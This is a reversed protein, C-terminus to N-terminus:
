RPTHRIPHDPKGGPWGTITSQLSKFVEINIDYAGGRHSLLDQLGHENYDEDTLKLLPKSLTIALWTAATRTTKTDWKLARRIVPAKHEGFALLVVTKASLITEVGMTIAKRPVNWEGFFDSAADMRTVRDLTILRTRSDRPSGPENFGIHGTRGIGLIQYDLGGADRIMREYDQCFATVKELPLTGDPVHANQPQIDVHDFLHERMFRRYSQLDEPGLTWYEDLNFTVVNRFSLGEERHLRVLEGYVGTPTSGTALGLVTKEGRAAKLDILAAIEQAVAKSAQVSSNYVTVPVDPAGPFYGKVAERPLRDKRVFAIDPARTTDPNRAITFGTEAAYVAGLHHRTVHADIRSTLRVIIRGHESGAPAMM